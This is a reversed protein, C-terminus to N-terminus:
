AVVQVQPQTTVPPPADTSLVERVVQSVQASVGTGTVTRLIESILQSVQADTAM